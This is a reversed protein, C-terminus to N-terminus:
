SILLTEDVDFLVLSQQDINELIEEFSNFKSHRSLSLALSHSFCVHHLYLLHMKQM